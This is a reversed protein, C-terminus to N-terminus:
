KDNLDFEKKMTKLINEYAHKVNKDTVLYNEITQCSHLVTSHDRGGFHGGISKLSLPTYHKALYMTMQRALAIEHRRSNSEMLEIPIQYFDSVIEKISEMNLMKPTSKNIGLVVEQALDLNIERRDFTVKAILTILAGELQRVSKSIHRAIFEAVELPLTFGENESKSQILAVRMEFDPPQIDTTLGWQFRSILREDVDKLERQHKDSTLIIQKGAQHLSNFTHFFNDQTKEKGQLFHIDDVILVDALRYYYTFEDLKNNKIANLFDLYFRECTTYIVKLKKFKRILSNGIGQVLHTKGLGSPSYIFLPNFNTQGPKECIAQAASAALQNSESRIFNELTYKPHLFSPFDQVEPISIFPLTHQQALPPHKLGPVKITRSELTDSDEDIVVEYLLKAGAGLVQELTKSLLAYYHEEIWESFFQSPVQVTLKNDTINLAKIPEFWTSFVQNSVNDRIIDLCKGWLEAEHSQKVLDKPKPKNKEITHIDSNDFIPLTTVKRSM